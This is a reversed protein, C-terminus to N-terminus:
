DSESASEVAPAATAAEGEPGDPQSAKPPAEAATEPLQSADFGADAAMAASLEFEDKTRAHPPLSLDLSLRWPDGTQPNRENSWKLERDGVTFKTGGDGAQSRYRLFLANANPYINNGGSFQLDGEAVDSVGLFEYLPADADTMLICNDAVTDVSLQYGSGPRRQMLYLGRQCVATVHSLTLSVPEFRTPKTASGGTAILSLPTVVLGQNWRVSLPTEENMGIVSAAGRAICRDLSLRTPSAMSPQPQGMTM